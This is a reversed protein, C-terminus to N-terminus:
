PAHSVCSSWIITVTSKRIYVHLQEWRSSSDPSGHQRFPFPHRVSWVWGNDARIFIPHWHVPMRVYRQIRITQGIAEDIVLKTIGWQRIDCQLCRQPELSTQRKFELPRGASTWSTICRIGQTSRLAVATNQIHLLARMFRAVLSIQICVTKMESRKHISHPTWDWCGATRQCQKGTLPCQIQDAWTLNSLYRQCLVRAEMQSRHTGGIICIAIIYGSIVNRTYFKLKLVTYANLLRRTYVYYLIYRSNTSSLVCM